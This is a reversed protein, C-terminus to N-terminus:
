CCCARGVAHASMDDNHRSVILHHHPFAIIDKAVEVVKGEDENLQTDEGEVVADEHVRDEACDNQCGHGEDGCPANTNRDRQEEGTSRECCVPIDQHVSLAEGHECERVEGVYGIQDGVDPDKEHWHRHYPVQLQLRLLLKEEAEDEADSKRVSHKSGRFGV